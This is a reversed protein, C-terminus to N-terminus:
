ERGRIAASLERPRDLVFYWLWPSAFLALVIGALLGTDSYWALFIRSKYTDRLQEQNPTLIVDKAYGHKWLKEASCSDIYGRVLADFQEFGSAAQPLPQITGSHLNRWETWSKLAADNGGATFAADMLKKDEAAESECKHELAKIEQQARKAEVVGWAYTAGGALIGALLILHAVRRRRQM